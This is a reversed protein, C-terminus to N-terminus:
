INIAFNTLHLNVNGNAGIANHAQVAYKLANTLNSYGRKSKTLISHLGLIMEQTFILADTRKRISNIFLLKQGTPKKLFDKALRQKNTQYKFSTKIIQCRSTITPLLNNESSATLIYCLNKQPEELNKLFANLAEHTASDIDRILIVLPTNQKLKTFSSLERVDAIKALSFEFIKARFSKTIKEVEADIKEEDKGVIIYSHM